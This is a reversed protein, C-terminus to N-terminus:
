KDRKLMGRDDLLSTKAGKLVMNVIAQEKNAVDEPSDGLGPLNARVIRNIDTPAVLGNLATALDTEMTTQASLYQKAAQSRPVMDTLAKVGEGVYPIHNAEEISRRIHGGFGSAGGSGSNLYMGQMLDHIGGVGDGKPGNLVKEAQQAQSYQTHLLAMEAPDKAKDTYRLQDLRARANPALISYVKANPASGQPEKGQGFDTYGPSQKQQTPGAKGPPAGSVGSKTALVAADNRLQASDANLKQVQMRMNAIAQPTGLQAAALEIKKAYIDNMSAKALNLSINNEGYLHQWAGLVTKKNEVNQQQAHIDRDIQKELHEFAFNTGGFATGLGGLALGITAATKAGSGMSEQFHRPNITGSKQMWDNFQQTQSNIMQQNQQIGRATAQESELREKIAPEAMQAKAADVNAQTQLGAKADEVSQLTQNAENGLSSGHVQKPQPVDVKPVPAPASQSLPQAYVPSQPAPAPAGVNIVTQPSQAPAPQPPAEAEADPMDPADEPPGGEALGKLKPRVAKREFQARGKAEEKAEQMEEDVPEGREKMKKAHRVTKGQESMGEEIEGGKAFKLRKLQEQQIKALGKLAITMQHGKPHKLTVTKDDESVKEWDRFNM